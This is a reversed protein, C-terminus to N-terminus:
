VLTKEIRGPPYNLPIKKRTDIMSHPAHSLIPFRDLYFMNVKKEVMMMMFEELVSTFM